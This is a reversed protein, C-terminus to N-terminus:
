RADVLKAFRRVFEARAREPPWPEIEVELAEVGELEPWEWVDVMLARRESALMARDVQKVLEPPEVPLGFRACVAAQLRNEAVRYGEGYTSHKLPNALDGLYAEAADHLLAWLTDDASGGSEAVADAVLCSHQAVSFFVRSHGGFRCLNSLAHAVDELEIDGPTPDLPRVRRGGVTQIAADVRIM